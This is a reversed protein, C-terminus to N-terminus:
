TANSEVPSAQSVGEEKEWPKKRRPQISESGKGELVTDAVDKIGPVEKGAEIMAVIEAYSLSPGDQDDLKAPRPLAQGLSALEQKKQEKKENKLRDENRSEWVEFKDM